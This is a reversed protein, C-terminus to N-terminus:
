GDLRVYRLADNYEEPTEVEQTRVVEIGEIRGAKTWTILLEAGNYRSHTLNQIDYACSSDSKTRASSGDTFHVMYAPNGNVSSNLRTVFNIIQISQNANM